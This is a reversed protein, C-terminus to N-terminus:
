DAADKLSVTFKPATLGPAAGPVTERHVELRGQDQLQQLISYTAPYRLDVQDKWLVRVVQNLRGISCKGEKKLTDLVAEWADHLIQPTMRGMELAPQFRHIFTGEMTVTGSSAMPLEELTM